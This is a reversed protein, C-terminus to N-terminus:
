REPIVVSVHAVTLYRHSNCNQGPKPKIQHWRDYTKQGVAGTLPEQQKRVNEKTPTSKAPDEAEDM